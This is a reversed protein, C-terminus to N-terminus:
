PAHQKKTLSATAKQAILAFGKGAADTKLAALEARGAATKGSNLQVNAHAFRAELQDPVLAYKAADRTASSLSQLAQDPSGAAAQIQADVITLALRKPINQSKAALLKASGLEQKAEKSKNQALLAQLLVVDAGIEDDPHAEKRYEDRVERAAHEADAPKGEQISLAALQLRTEAANSDEGIKTRTQMAEQLNRRAQPLDGGAMLIEGWNASALAAHPKDGTQRTIDLAEQVAKKASQLDGRLYYARAVHALAAPLTLRNGNERALGEAESDNAIAGAVDGLGIEVDGLDILTLADTGGLEHAISLVDLEMVKAGALDGEDTRLDAINALVNLQGAKNGTSKWISLAQEFRKDAEPLNGMQYFVTGTNNLTKALEGPYDASAWIRRSEEWAALAQDKEGLSFHASGESLRASAEVFKAGQAQAQRAARQSAALMGRPDGVWRLATAEQLSLRPDENQPPLLKKLAVITQLADKAKGGRTQASALKLGYEANDPYFGALTRYVDIAVPWSQTMERYRGEVLMRDERSLSGSLEFALKAEDRAKEDYGLASWAQALAYHAMPFKPDAAVAKQLPDLADRSNYVRLKALGEAYLRAAAPSTPYSAEVGAAEVPALEGIGIRQRLDSGVRSVLDFLNIESGAEAVSAVTEGTTADQLQVDVRLQEASSNGLATYGGVLVLDSGLYSHVRKLTDGALTNTEPLSLDREMRAVNEAPIIRLQDGASLETALMEPLATSLWATQARKSSNEFGLVAVSKRLKAGPASAPAVASTEHHLLRDRSGHWNFGLLLLFALLPVAILLWLSRAVRKPRAEPRSVSPPGQVAQLASRVDAARQYRDDPSKQLCRLIVARLGPPVTAPLPAPADELIAASLEAATQGRFPHSGTVMEFLILGFSFLDTRADLKEGRVQEPSMYGATGMSVGIRSLTLDAPLNQPARAPHDPGAADMPLESATETGAKALGFDLIKVKGSPTVFINAPKIDRHIIGKQHAANLGEAIQTATDLL